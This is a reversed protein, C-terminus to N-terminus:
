IPWQGEEDGGRIGGRITVLLTVIECHHDLQPIRALVTRVRDTLPEGSHIM